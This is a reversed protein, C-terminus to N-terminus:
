KPTKLSVEMQSVAIKIGEAQLSEKIKETMMFHTAREKDANDVWVRAFLNVSSAGLQDVVVTPPPDKRVGKIELLAKILVDRVRSIDEHYGVGFSVVIRLEGHESHNVLVENAIKQNPIVVFTNDLTRIRTTRMTIKQVRGYMDGVTIWQGIRFPKDIYILIGSIINSLTDQAAFGVAIGLVGLGAVTATLNIGLQGAAIVVAILFLVVRYVTSILLEANVQQMGRWALLRMLPRSTVRYLIWFALLVLFALFLKPVSITLASIFGEGSLAKTIADM